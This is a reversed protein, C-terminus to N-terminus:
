FLNELNGHESKKTHPVVREPTPVPAPTPAPPTDWATEDDDDDSYISKNSRNDIALAPNTAAYEQYYYRGGHEVMNAPPQMPTVPINKLAYQMYDAWVPAATTGGTAKKGITRPKDYGIYVATSLFPNYGVFWVDKSDNTTGTKGAIDNRKIGATAKAATGRKVVDKMMQTMIFANRADIM